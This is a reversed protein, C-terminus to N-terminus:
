STFEVVAVNGSPRRSSTKSSSSTLISTFPAGLSCSRALDRSTLHSRKPLAPRCCHTLHDKVDLIPLERSGRKLQQSCCGKPRMM